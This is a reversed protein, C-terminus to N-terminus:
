AQDIWSDLKTAAINERIGDAELLYEAIEAHTMKPYTEKLGAIIVKLYAESPAASKLLHTTTFTFVPCKEETGVRLLSGYLPEGSLVFAPKQILEEYTPVFRTGDVARGNEQLVVDNFQEDTILYTRGYATANLEATRIFAPAGKWGSAYGAFYLEFNLTIPKNELPLTKDRCGPNRHSSGPPSGGVIYCLFRKEYNLNSGYSAYWILKSQDTM